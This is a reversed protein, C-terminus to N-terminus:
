EVLIYSQLGDNEHLPRFEVLKFNRIKESWDEATPDHFKTLFEFIMENRLKNFSPSLHEIKNIVITYNIGKHDESKVKAMIIEKGDSDIFWLSRQFAVLSKSRIGDNLWLSVQNSLFSSIVESNTFTAMIAVSREAM